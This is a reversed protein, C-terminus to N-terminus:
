ILAGGAPQGNFDDASSWFVVRLFICYNRSFQNVCLTKLLEGPPGPTLLGANLLIISDDSKPAGSNELWPQGPKKVILMIGTKESKTNQFHPQRPLIEFDSLCLNFVICSDQISWKTHNCIDPHKDSHNVLGRVTRLPKTRMKWRFHPFFHFLYSRNHKLFQQLCKVTVTICLRLVVRHSLLSLLKYLVSASPFEPFKALYSLWYTTSDFTLNVVAQKLSDAYKNEGMNTNKKPLSGSLTKMWLPLRSTIRPSSLNIM